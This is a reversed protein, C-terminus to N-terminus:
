AVRCHDQDISDSDDNSRFRSILFISETDPDKDSLQQYGARQSLDTYHHQYDKLSGACEV